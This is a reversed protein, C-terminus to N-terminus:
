VGRDLKAQLTRKALAEPNNLVRPCNKCVYAGHVNDPICNWTRAIENIRAATYPYGPIAAGDFRVPSMYNRRKSVCGCLPARAIYFSSADANDGFHVHAMAPGLGDKTIEMLCFGSAPHGANVDKKKLTGM